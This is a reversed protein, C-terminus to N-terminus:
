SERGRDLGEKNGGLLCFSLIFWRLPSSTPPKRRESPISRSGRDSHVGRWGGALVPYLRVRSAFGTRARGRTSPASCQRGSLEAQGGRQVRRWGGAYGVPSHRPGLPSPSPLLALPNPAPTEREPDRFPNRLSDPALTRVGPDGSRREAGVRSKGWRRSPFCSSSGDPRLVISPFVSSIMDAKERGRGTRTGRQTPGSSSGTM